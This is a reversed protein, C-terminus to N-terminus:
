TEPEHHPGSAPEVEALARRLADAVRDPGVVLAIAKLTDPVPDWLWDESLWFGPLVVSRYIRDVGTLALAYRGDAGLRYFWARRVGPRNDIIWYEQVGAREYEDFKDVRDRHVSDTSVIEIVLDPPGDVRKPQLRDLNDRHVFLLDPERSPGDPSLHVEFPAVQVRGLQLAEVFIGILRDLFTVVAQHIDTPPMHIIVEGDVWEAHIDEDHWALYDDYSMRLALAESAAPTSPPAKVAGAAIPSTATEATAEAAFTPVLAQEIVMPQEMVPQELKVM